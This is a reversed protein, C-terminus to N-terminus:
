EARDIHLSPRCFAKQLVIAHGIKDKLCNGVFWSSGLSFGIGMGEAPDFDAPATARSRRTNLYRKELCARPASVGAEVLFHPAGLKGLIARKQLARRPRCVHM